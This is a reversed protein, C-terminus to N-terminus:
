LIVYSYYDWIFNNFLLSSCCQCAAAPPLPPITTQGGRILVTSTLNRSPVVETSSHTHATSSHYSSVSVPCQARFMVEGRRSGGPGGGRIDGDNWPTHSACGCGILGEPRRGTPLSLSFLPLFPRYIATLVSLFDLAEM